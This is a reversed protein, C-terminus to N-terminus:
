RSASSTPAAPLRAGRGRHAADDVLQQLLEDLRVPNRRLSNPDGEARTVQLLQGVLSNLRDSEKQIRNLAAETDEGSRALEVAM